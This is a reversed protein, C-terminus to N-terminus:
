ATYRKLGVSEQVKTGVEQSGCQQRSAYSHLYSSQFRESLDYGVAMRLM